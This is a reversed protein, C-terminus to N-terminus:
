KGKLTMGSPPSPLSCAGRRVGALFAGITQTVLAEVKDHGMGNGAFNMHM